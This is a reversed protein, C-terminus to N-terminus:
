IADIIQVPLELGYMGRVANSIVCKGAASSTIKRLSHLTTFLPRISDQDPTYGWVMEFLKNKLVPRGVNVTLVLLLQYEKDRLRIPKRDPLSVVQRTSPMLEIKDGIILKRYRDTEVLDDLMCNMLQMDAESINGDQFMKILKLCGAKFRETMREKKSSNSLAEELHTYRSTDM